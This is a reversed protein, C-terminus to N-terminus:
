SGWDEPPELRGPATVWLDRLEACRGDAALRFAICGALTLDFGDERMPAWYEVAARDGEVVPEGFRPEVEEEDAFVRRTYERADEPERFPHSRFLCDETFLATAADTDGGRWAEEYRAIWREVEERSV